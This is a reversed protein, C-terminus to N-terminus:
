QGTPVSPARRWRLRMRGAEVAGELLAVEAHALDFAGDPEGILEGLLDALDPGHGVVLLRAPEEPRRALVARLGELTFADARLERHPEADVGLLGGALRATQATRAYPSSWIADVRMRRTRRLGGIVELVQAEGGKTLRRSEDADGPEPHGHRMLYLRM